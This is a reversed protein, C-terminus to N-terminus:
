QQACTAAAADIATAAGDLLYRDVNRRGAGDRSDVRMGGAGRMAAVIAAEQAPGRSWAFWGQGKLLFPQEGVTLIVSGGARLPRGLRVSVTGVSRRALDFLLAVYAQPQDRASDRLSRAMARCHGQEEIAAWQGRAQVIRASAPTALMLIWLLLLRSM